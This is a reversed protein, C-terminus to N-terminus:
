LQCVKHKTVQNTMGVATILPVKASLKPFYIKKLVKFYPWNENLYSMWLLFVVSKYGINSHWIEPHSHSFNTGFRLFTSTLWTTLFTIQDLVKLIYFDWGNQLTPCSLRRFNSECHLIVTLSGVRSTSKSFTYSDM